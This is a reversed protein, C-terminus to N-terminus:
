IPDPIGVKVPRGGITIMTANLNIEGDSEIVVRTTGKILIENSAQDMTITDGTKQNTIRFKQVGGGTNWEMRFGPFSWVHNDPDLPVPGDESEAPAEGTGWSSAMYYPADPDGNRFWVNVDADLQPVSFFGSNRGGGGGQPLAWIGMPEFLGPIKVRVRGLGLPDKRDTVVGGLMGMLRADRPDGDDFNGNGNM